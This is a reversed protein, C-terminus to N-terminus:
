KESRENRYSRSRIMELTDRRQHDVPKKLGEELSNEETWKVQLGRSHELEDKLYGHSMGHSLFKIASSVNTMDSLILLIFHFSIDERLTVCSETWKGQKAYCERLLRYDGCELNDEKREGEM